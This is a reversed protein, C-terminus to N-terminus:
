DLGRKMKSMKTSTHVWGAVGGVLVSAMMFLMFQGKRRRAHLESQGHGHGHGPGHEEATDTGAPPVAMHLRMDKCFVTGTRGLLLRNAESRLM